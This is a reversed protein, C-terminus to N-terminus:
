RAGVQGGPPDALAVVHHVTRVIMMGHSIAPTAMVPAGMPNVSLLEYIPGAKLVFVEGDESAYYVRGDSAVASASFSNPRGGIRQDYVREGSEAKYVTLVGNNSGFYLM